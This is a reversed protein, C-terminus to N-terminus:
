RSVLLLKSVAAQHRVKGEHCCNAGATCDLCQWSDFEYRQCGVRKSGILIWPITLRHLDPHGTVHLRPIFEGDEVHVGADETHCSLLPSALQEDPPLEEALNSSWPALYDRLLVVGLIAM